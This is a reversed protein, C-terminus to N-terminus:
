YVDAVAAMDFTTLQELESGLYCEIIPDYYKKFIMCTNTNRRPRFRQRERRSQPAREDNDRIFCERLSPITLEQIFLCERAKSKTLKFTIKTEAAEELVNTGGDTFIMMSDLFKHAEYYQWSNDLDDWTVPNDPDSDISDWTWAPTATQALFLPGRHYDELPIPIYYFVNFKTSFAYIVEDGRGYWLLTGKIYHAVNSTFEINKRITREVRANLNLSIVEPATSGNVLREIGRNTIFYIAEAYQTLGGLYTLENIIPISNFQIDIDSIVAAHLTTDTFTYLISGSPIIDQVEQSEYLFHGATTFATRLTAGSGKIRTTSWETLDNVASWHVTSSLAIFLRERWIVIDKIKTDHIEPVTPVGSDGTTTQINGKLNIEILEIPSFNNVADEYRQALLAESDVRVLIDGSAFLVYLEENFIFPFGEEKPYTFTRRQNGDYYYDPLRRIPYNGEPTFTSRDVYYISEQEPSDTANYIIFTIYTQNHRVTRFEKLNGAAPLHVERRRGNVIRTRTQLTPTLDYEPKTLNIADDQTKSLTAAKTYASNRRDIPRYLLGDVEICAEEYADPRYPPLPHTTTIM